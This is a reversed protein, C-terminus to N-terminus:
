KRNALLIRVKNIIVSLGVSFMLVIIPKIWSLPQTQEIHLISFIANYFYAVALHIVYVYLSYTTGLLVIINRTSIQPYMVVILFLSTSYIIIGIESLDIPICVVELFVAFVAGFISLFLLIPLNLKKLIDEYYTAIYLGLLMWPLADWIFISRIHWSWGFTQTLFYVVIRLLFLVPVIKLMEITKNHKIVWLLVVYSIIQIYLFYLHGACIFDFDGIIIMKFFSIPLNRIWDLIGGNMTNLIITFLLYFVSSVLLIRIIRRLRRRLTHEEKNHLFYGSTM